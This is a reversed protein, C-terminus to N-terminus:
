TCKIGRVSLQVNGRSKQIPFFDSKVFIIRSDHFGWHQFNNLHSPKVRISGSYVSSGNKRFYIHECSKRGYPPKIGLSIKDVQELLGLLQKRAGPARGDIISHLFGNSYNKRQFGKESDRIEFGFESLWDDYIDLDEFAEVFDKYELPDEILGYSIKEEPYDYRKQPRVGNSVRLNHWHRYPVERIYLHNLNM